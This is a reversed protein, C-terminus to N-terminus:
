TEMRSYEAKPLHVFIGVKHWLGSSEGGGKVKFSIFFVCKISNVLNGINARRNIEFAKKMFSKSM